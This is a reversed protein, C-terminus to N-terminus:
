NRIRSCFADVIKADSMDKDVYRRRDIRSLYTCSM